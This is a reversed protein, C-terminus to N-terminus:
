QQDEGAGKSSDYSAGCTGEGRSADRLPSLACSKIRLWMRTLPAFQGEGGGEGRESRERPSPAVSRAARAAEAGSSRRRRLTPLISQSAAAAHARRACSKAWARSHLLAGKGVRMHPTQTLCRSRSPQLNRAPVLPPARLWAYRLASGRDVHAPVPKWHTICSV